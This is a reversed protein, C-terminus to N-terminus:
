LDWCKYKQFRIKQKFCNGLGNFIYIFPYYTYIFTCIFVEYLKKKLQVQLSTFNGQIIVETALPRCVSHVLLSRFGYIHM